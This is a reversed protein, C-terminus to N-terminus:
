TMSLIAPAVPTGNEKSKWPKYKCVWGFSVNAAFTNLVSGVTGKAQLEPLCLVRVM